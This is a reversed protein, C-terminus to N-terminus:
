VAYEWSEAALLTIRRVADQYAAASDDFPGVDVLARSSDLSMRSRQQRPVHVSYRWVGRKGDSAMEVRCGRYDAIIRAMVGGM